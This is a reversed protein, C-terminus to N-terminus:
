KQKETSHFLELTSLLKFRSKQKCKEIRKDTKYCFIDTVIPCTHSSPQREKDVLIKIYTFLEPAYQVEDILLPAKHLQLFLQPDRKALDRENLDDLSVYERDTGEMMRKLMTTKGVQRPGTVLVVPYEKTVQAVVTELNRTIYGM